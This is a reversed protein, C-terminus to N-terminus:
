YRIESIEQMIHQELLPFNRLYGSMAHINRYLNFMLHFLFLKSFVCVKEMSTFPNLIGRSILWRMYQTLSFREARVLESILLYVHSKSGPVTSFRELFALIPEQLVVGAKAEQRLVAAALYIRYLGVRLSTVAWECLCQVFQSHDPMIDICSKTLTDLDYPISASDLIDIVLRQSSITPGATKSKPNLSLSNNRHIVNQLCTEVLPDKRNVCKELTSQYLPWTQPIIM